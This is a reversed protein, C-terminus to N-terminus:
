MAWPVRMGSYGAHGAPNASNPAIVINERGRTLLVCGNRSTTIACNSPLSRRGGLVAPRASGAAIWVKGSSKAVVWEAALVTGSSFFTVLVAAAFASLLARM